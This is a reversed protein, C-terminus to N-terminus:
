LDLTLDGRAIVQESTEQGPFDIRPFEHKMGELKSRRDVIGYLGNHSPRDAL